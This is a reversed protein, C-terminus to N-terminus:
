WGMMENETAKQPLIESKVMSPVEIKNWHQMKDIILTSLYFINNEQVFCIKTPPM